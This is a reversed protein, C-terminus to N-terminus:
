YISGNNKTKSQLVKVYRKGKLPENAMFIQAVGCRAYEYDEKAYSSPKRVIPISTQKILQKPSEDMCVVPFSKNYPTKYIDLILEKHAVLDSSEHPPIVWGKVKWPKIKNAAKGWQNTIESQGKVAKVPTLVKSNSLSAM